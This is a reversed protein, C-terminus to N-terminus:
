EYYRGILNMTTQRQEKSEAVERLIVSPPASHRAFL